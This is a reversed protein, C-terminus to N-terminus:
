ADWMVHTNAAVSAELLKILPMARQSLAVAPPEDGEGRKPLASEEARNLATKLKELAAPIEEAQIASPVDGSLGMMKLLSVAVEGFMTIDAYAKSHFTVLM